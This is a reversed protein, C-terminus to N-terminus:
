LNAEPYHCGFLRRWKLCDSLLFDFFPKRNKQALFRASKEDKDFLKLLFNGLVKGYKNYNIGSLPAIRIGASFDIVPRWIFNKMFKWLVEQWLKDIISSYGEAAFLHGDHFFM